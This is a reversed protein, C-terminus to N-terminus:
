GKYDENIIILIGLAHEVELVVQGKVLNREASTMTDLLVYMRDWISKSVWVTKVLEPSGSTWHHEVYNFFHKLTYVDQLKM